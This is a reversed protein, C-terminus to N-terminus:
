RRGERKRLRYDKSRSWDGPFTRPNNSYINGYDVEM